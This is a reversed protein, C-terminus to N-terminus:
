KSYILNKDDEATGYKKIANIKWITKQTSILWIKSVPVLIRDSATLMRITMVVKKFM